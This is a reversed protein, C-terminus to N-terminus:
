KLKKKSHSHIEVDKNLVMRHFGLANSLTIFVANLSLGCFM